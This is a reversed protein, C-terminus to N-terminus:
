PSQTGPIKSTVLMLPYAGGTLRPILADIREAAGDDAKLFLHLSTEMLDLQHCLQEFFKERDETWELVQESYPNIPIGNKLDFYKSKVGTKIQTALRWEVEFGHYVIHHRGAYHDTDRARKVEYLIVKMETKISEEYTKIAQAMALEAAVETHAHIGEKDSDGIIIRRIALPLQVFFSSTKSSYKMNLEFDEGGIVVNIKRIQPM